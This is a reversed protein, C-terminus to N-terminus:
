KVQSYIRHQTVGDDIANVHHTIVKQQQILLARGTILRFTVRTDVSIKLLCSTM